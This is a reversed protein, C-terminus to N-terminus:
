AEKTVRAERRRRTPARAVIDQAPVVSLVLGLIPLGLWPVAVASRRLIGWAPPRPPVSRYEVWVLVALSALAAGLLAVATFPLLEGFATEVRPPDLLLPLTSGVLLVVPAFAWAGHGAQLGILVRARSRLPIERHRVANEVVFPLDTAGRAWRRADLYSAGLARISTRGRAADGFAPIFLQVVRFRRGHTFYGKWSFRADGPLADTAWYGVEHALQLTTSSPGGGPLRGSVVSRAM